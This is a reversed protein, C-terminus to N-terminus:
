LIGVRLQTNFKRLAETEDIKLQQAKLLEFSHLADDILQKISLINEAYSSKVFIPYM